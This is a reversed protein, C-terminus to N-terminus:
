YRYPRDPYERRPQHLGHSSVPYRVVLPRRPMGLLDPYPNKEVFPRSRTYTHTQREPHTRRYTYTHTPRSIHSNDHLGVPLVPQQGYEGGEGEENSDRSRGIRLERKTIHNGASNTTTRSTTSPRDRGRERERAGEGDQTDMDLIYSLYPNAVRSFPCAPVTAFLCVFRIFIM